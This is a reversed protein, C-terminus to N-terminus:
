PGFGLPSSGPAARGGRIGTPDADRDPPRRVEEAGADGLCREAFADEGVGHGALAGVEDAVGVQRVGVAVDRVDCRTQGRETGVLAGDVSHPVQRTRLGDRGALDELEDGALDSM